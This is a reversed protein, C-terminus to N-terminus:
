NTKQEHTKEQFKKALLKGIYAAGSNNFHTYDKYALVPKQEVWKTMTGSGGMLDFLNIFGFGLENALEQQVKILPEVGPATVWKGEKSRYSKDASSIILIACGPTNNKLHILTKRLQKKYYSFDTNLPRFLLNPGYHLIMLDFPRSKFLDAMAEPKMCNLELGSSGRFSYNDLILGSDSEFCIGYIGHAGKPFNLKLKSLKKEQSLQFANFALEPMLSFETGNFQLLIPESQKGCLLTPNALSKLLNQKVGEYEVWALSNASFQHGSLFHFPLKKANQFNQDRWNPSFRHQITQRFGSVVSTIPVFGVGTGGYTKQLIERINQTILDGEIMSDGFYGIRVKKRKRKKLEALKKFFQELSQDKGKSSYDIFNPVTKVKETTLSDLKPNALNTEKAKNEAFDSFLNFTKKLGLKSQFKPSLLSFLALILFCLGIIKLPEKDRSM